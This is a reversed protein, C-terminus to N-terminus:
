LEFLGEPADISIYKEKDNIELIIDEHAPILYERDEHMVRLLPNNSIAAIEVAFGVFGMSIDTVKYGSIDPLAKNSKTKRRVTDKIPIYVPLGAFVKAKTESDVREFNLIASDKSNQRYSEIFFPVLLGEIELFVSEGKRIDEVMSNKLWLLLSGKIGHPKALEGLLMCNEKKIM